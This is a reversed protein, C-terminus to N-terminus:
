PVRAVEPPATMPCCLVKGFPFGSDAKWEPLHKGRSSTRAGLLAGPSGLGGRPHGKCAGAGIGGLAWVQWAGPHSQAGLPEHPSSLLSLLVM